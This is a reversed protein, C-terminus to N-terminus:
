RGEGEGEEVGKGKWEKSTPSWLGAVPNPPTSYAEGAPDLASHRGLVFKTCELAALFGSTAITKLIRFHM